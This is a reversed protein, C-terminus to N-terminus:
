WVFGNAKSARKVGPRVSTRAGIFIVLRVWREECGNSIVSKLNALREINLTTFNRFSGM